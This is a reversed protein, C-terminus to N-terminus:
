MMKAPWRKLIGTSMHGWYLPVLEIFGDWMCTLSERYHRTLKRDYKLGAMVVQEYFSASLYLM